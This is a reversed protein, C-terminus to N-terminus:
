NLSVFFTTKSLKLKLITFLQLEITLHVKIGVNTM